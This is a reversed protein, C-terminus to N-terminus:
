HSFHSFHSPCYSVADLTKESAFTIFGFGRPNGTVADFKVSVNEVDGYKAFYERLDGSLTDFNTTILPKILLKPNSIKPSSFRYM